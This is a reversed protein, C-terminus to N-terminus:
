VLIYQNSSFGGIYLQRVLMPSSVNVLYNSTSANLASLTGRTTVSNQINFPVSFPVTSTYVVNYLSNTTDGVKKCSVTNSPLSYDLETYTKVFPITTPTTTISSTPTTSSSLNFNTSKLSILYTTDPYLSSLKITKSNGSITTDNLISL